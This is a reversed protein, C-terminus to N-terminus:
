SLSTVPRPTSKVVLYSPAYPTSDMLEREIALGVRALEHDLLWATQFSERLLLGGTPQRGTAHYLTGSVLVRVAHLAYLPSARRVGDVLKKLYYRLHHVKLLLLGGARLVRSMEALAKANDTYPIALRCLVVDFSGDAFPLHEAVATAFSVRVGPLREAFLRTGVRASGPAVDVGICSVDAAALPIMEQGAGCGVDLVRRTEVGAVAERTARERTPDRAFLSWELELYQEYESAM